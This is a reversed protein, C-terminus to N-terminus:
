RKDGFAAGPGESTGKLVYPKPRNSPHVFPRHNALKVEIDRLDRLNEFTANADSDSRWASTLDVTVGDLKALRDGILPQQGTMDLPDPIVIGAFIHALHHSRIAVNLARYKYLVAILPKVAENLEDAFRQNAEGTLLSLEVALASKAEAIQQDSEAAKRCLAEGIRRFRDFVRCKEEAAVATENALKENQIDGEETSSLALEAEAKAQMECAQQYSEEATKVDAANQEIAGDINARLALADEAWKIAAFMEAPLGYAAAGDRSKTTVAAKRIM